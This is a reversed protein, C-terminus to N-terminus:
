SVVVDPVHRPQRSVDVQRPLLVLLDVGVEGLPRGVRCLGTLSYNPLKLGARTILTVRAPRKKSLLRGLKDVAFKLLAPPKAERM